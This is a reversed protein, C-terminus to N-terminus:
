IFPTVKYIIDLSSFSRLVSGFHSLKPCAHQSLVTKHTSLYMMTLTSLFIDILSIFSSLDMVTKTMDLRMTQGSAKIHYIFSIIFSNGVPFLPLMKWKSFQTQQILLWWATPRSTCVHVPLLFSYLMIAALLRSLTRAPKRKWKTEESILSFLVDM